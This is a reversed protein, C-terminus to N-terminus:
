LLRLDGKKNMKAMYILGKDTWIAGYISFDNKLYAKPFETIFCQGTTNSVLVFDDCLEAITNGIKHQGQKLWELESECLKNIDWIGKTTRIYM